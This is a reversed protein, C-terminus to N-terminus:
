SGKQIRKQVQKKNLEKYSSWDAMLQFVGAKNYLCKDIIKYEQYDM